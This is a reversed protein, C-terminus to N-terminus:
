ALRKAFRGAETADRRKPLNVAHESEEIQKRRTRVSAAVQLANILM